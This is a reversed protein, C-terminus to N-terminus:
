FHANLAAVVEDYTAGTDAPSVFIDQVEVPLTYYFCASKGRTQAVQLMLSFISSRCGPVGVTQFM